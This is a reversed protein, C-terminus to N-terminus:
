SATLNTRTVFVRLGLQLLANAVGLAAAIQAATDQSWPLTNTYATVLPVASAVFVGINSWVTTSKYWPKSFM